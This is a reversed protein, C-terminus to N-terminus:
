RDRAALNDQIMGAVGSAATDSRTMLGALVGMQDAISRNQSMKWKGTLSQIRLEVGVVAGIMRDIYEEPADSMAWPLAQSAEHHDTLSQLHALLWDRDEIFTPLAHVHVVAYNWTPVAKGHEHKSPYWSPSIYSQPGQFSVLHPIVSVGRKWVPNARAVHGVLTGFEGRTADIEFPLHNAVLESEGPSVWLGLPHSRILAHLVDLRTEENQKPLYM